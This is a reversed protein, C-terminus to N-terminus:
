NQRKGGRCGIIEKIPRKRRGKDKSKVDGTKNEKLHFWLARLLSLSVKGSNLMGVERGECISYPGVEKTDCILGESIKLSNQVCSSMGM